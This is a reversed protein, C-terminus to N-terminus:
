KACAALHDREIMEVIAEHDKFVTMAPVKFKTEKWPKMKEFNMLITQGTTDDDVVFIPRKDWKIRPFLVHQQMKHDPPFGEKIQAIIEISYEIWIM